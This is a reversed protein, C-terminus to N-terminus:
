KVTRISDEDFAYLDITLLPWKRSVATDNKVCSIAFQLVVLSMFHRLSSFPNSDWNLKICSVTVPVYCKKWRETLTWCRNRFSSARKSDEPSNTDVLWFREFFFFFDPSLLTSSSIRIKDFRFYILLIDQFLSYIPFHILSKYNKNQWM